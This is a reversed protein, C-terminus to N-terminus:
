LILKAIDNFAVVAMLALLCFILFRKKPGTM